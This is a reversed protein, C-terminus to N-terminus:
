TYKENINNIIKKLEDISSIIYDADNLYKKTLTNEIAVTKIKAKKGSLIGLPANEIVICNNPKKKLLNM